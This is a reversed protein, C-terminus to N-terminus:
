RSQVVSTIKVDIKFNAYAKRGTSDLHTDSASFIVSGRISPDTISHMLPEGEEPCTPALRETTGDTYSRMAYM